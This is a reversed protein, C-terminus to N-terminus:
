CRVGVRRAVAGTSLLLLSLAALPALPWQEGNGRGTKPMGAMGAGMKPMGMEVGATVGSPMGMLSGGSFLSGTSSGGLSSIDLKEANPPATITIPTDFDRFTITLELALAISTGGSTSTGNAMLTMKHLYMDNDGVWVFIAYKFDDAATTGGSTSSLGSAAALKQFDVDIRYKTTPAGNVAEKGVHTVTYADSLAPDLGTTSTISTGIGGTSGGLGTDVEYWKDDGSGLGSMKFYSKGKAVIISTTSTFPGVAGAGGTSPADISITVDEQVDQGSIAGGGSFQANVDAGGGSSKLFGSIDFRASGPTKTPPLPASPVKAAASGVMGLLMGVVMFLVLWVKMGGKKMSIGGESIHAELIHSLVVPM